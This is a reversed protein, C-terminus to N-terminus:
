FEFTEHHFAFQTAEDSLATAAEWTATVLPTPGCCYVAHRAIGNARVSSLVHRMDPRGRFVSTPALGLAAADPEERTMHVLPVFTAYGPQASRAACQRVTAGFVDYTARGEVVWVFYIFEALHISQAAAM